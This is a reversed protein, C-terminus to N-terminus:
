VTSTMSDQLAARRRRYVQRSVISRTSGAAFSPAAPSFARASTLFARPSNIRAIVNLMGNHMWINALPSGTACESQAIENEHHPFILDSGGGHIDITDGISTPSFFRAGISKATHFAAFGPSGYQSEGKPLPLGPQCM